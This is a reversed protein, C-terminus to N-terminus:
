TPMVSVIEPRVALRLQKRHEKVKAHRIQVFASPQRKKCM